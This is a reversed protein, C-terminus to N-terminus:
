PGIKFTDEQNFPDYFLSPRIFFNCLIGEFIVDVVKEISQDAVVSIEIFHGRNATFGYASRLHKKSKDPTILDIENTYIDNATGRITKEKFLTTRIGMEKYSNETFERYRKEPLSDKLYSDVFISIVIREKNNTTVLFKKYRDGIKISDIKAPMNTIFGFHEDIHLMWRIKVTDNAFFYQWVGDKYNNEFKGKALLNPSGNNPSYLFLTKSKGDLQFKGLYEQRSDVYSFFRGKPTCSLGFISIVVIFFIKKM